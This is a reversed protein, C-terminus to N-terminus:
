LHFQLKFLKEYIGKAAILEEHSGEEEVKGNSLVIIKDVHRITSLRHAIVLATKEKLLRNLVDQIVKETHSDINATAEDLMFVTRDHAVARAMSVLQMEGVSLGKGREMLFHDVGELYRKVINTLQVYDIAQMIKSKPFDPEFLSINEAFTGSFIVPDQLIVSFQKRLSDLTYDRIEKGNILISGKQYDYFRLLLSMITTKGSGTVGVLATSQGKLIKLNVGKLIWNDAEYAFWVDKFEIENIEDLEIGSCNREEVPLDLIHFIRQAAATASQLVNYREALDALPRFFMMAYLTFAYFTGAQFGAEPSSTKVLIVFVMTLSFVQLFDLSSILLSFHSITAMYAKSADRNIAEFRKKQEKHMGFHHITSAGMLQEQVFTNLGSIVTRLYDYAERENVRFRNTIYFILPFIFTVALAVEWSIAWLAAYIGTFLILNGFLPVISEAFMQNIQDVDHITRSIMRGVSNKDFYSLPLRQIKEYVEKRLTYLAKQGVWNRVFVNLMDMLYSLLLLAGLLFCTVKIAHLDIDSTKNIFSQTLKGIEFPISAEIIKACLLFFIALFTFFKYPALYSLLRYLLEKDSLNREVKESQYEDIVDDDIM